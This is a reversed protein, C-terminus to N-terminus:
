RRKEDGAEGVVERGNEPEHQELLSADPIALVPKVQGQATKGHNDSKNHQDASGVGTNNINYTNIRM